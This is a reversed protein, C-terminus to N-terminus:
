NASQKRKRGGPMSNLSVYPNLINFLQESAVDIALLETRFSPLNEAIHVGGLASVACYWAGHIYACAYIVYAAASAGLGRCGGDTYVLYDCRQLAFEAPVEFFSKSCLRPGLAYFGVARLHM